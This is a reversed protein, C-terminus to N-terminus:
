ESREAIGRIIMNQLQTLTTTGFHNSEPLNRIQLLWRQCELCKRHREERTVDVGLGNVWPDLNDQIIPLFNSLIVRLTDCARTYHFKHQSQLLEFIEPLLLMCLDLNWSSTKELIAGLLDVFVTRGMKIAQKLAGMIDHSRTSNRIIQLTAHRNSLEQYVQEHTASLMEIEPSDDMHPRTNFSKTNLSSQTLLAPDTRYSVPIHTQRHGPGTGASATQQKQASRLELSTKSRTPAKTIIQVTIQNKNRANEKNLHAKNKNVVMHSSASKKILVNDDLKHLDTTSVSSVQSLKNRQQITNVVTSKTNAQTTTRKTIHSTIKPKVTKIPPHVHSNTSNPNANTAHNSISISPQQHLNTNVPFDEVMETHEYNTIVPPFSENFTIESEPTFPDDFSEYQYIASREGSMKLSSPGDFNLTGLSNGGFSSYATSSSISPFQYPPSSVQKPPPVNISMSSYNSDFEGYNSNFSGNLSTPPVPIRAPDLVPEDVLELSLNPSSHGDLSPSRNDENEEVLRSQKPGGISLRLKQNGRSFSKRTTSNHVFAAPTNSPNYFPFVRNVSLADIAVYEQEFSGCILRRNVIKMDGFNSWSSKIHDFERDPEWGIISIAVGTGVFLCEGNESFTICKIPNGYFLSTADTRTVRLQTELDYICITGDMRGVALLFEFPHFQICSIAAAAPQECFEMIQKSKRIDWIIVSGETGASAIWLGDPSFKVSNVHSIHGRYVKMCVNQNRVDWLRVTTDNSGSVVYEGSPNFDLTRVSKMHGNLTSCITQANLDWRRIIGIDDASYVFDDNYAFRVCDIPRNHGTLSMFCETQGIAWLNVNRDQGGTVLVRGTEGVDLCNVNGNHAKIEYIRETLKRALAM